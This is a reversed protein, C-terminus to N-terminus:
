DVVAQPPPPATKKRTSKQHNSWAPSRRVPNTTNIVKLQWLHIPTPMDEIRNDLLTTISSSIWEQIRQLPWLLHNKKKGRVALNKKLRQFHEQSSRAIQRKEDKLKMIKMIPIDGRINLMKVEQQIILGDFYFIFSLFSVVKTCFKEYVHLISVRNSKRISISRKMCTHLYEMTNLYSLIKWKWVVARSSSVSHTRRIVQDPLGKYTWFQSIVFYSHEHLPPKIKTAQNQTKKQLCIHLLSLDNFTLRIKIDKIQPENPSKHITHLSLFSSLPSCPSSLLSSLPSFIFLVVQSNLEARPNWRQMIIVQYFRWTLISKFSRIISLIPTRSSIQTILINKVHWELPSFPNLSLLCLIKQETTWCRWTKLLYSYDCSKAIRFLIPGELRFRGTEQKM